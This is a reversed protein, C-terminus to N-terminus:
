LLNKQNNHGMFYNKLYQFTINNVNEGFDFENNSVTVGAESVLRDSVDKLYSERQADMQKVDLLNNSLTGFFSSGLNEVEPTESLSTRWHVKEKKEAEGNIGDFWKVEGTSKNKIWDEGGQKSMETPDVLNIPNNHVYHYPTWIVFQKAM